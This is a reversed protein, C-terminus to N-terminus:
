ETEAPAAAQASTPRRMALLATGAIVLVIGVGHGFRITEGFITVAAVIPLVNSLITVVPSVVSARGNAFATQFFVSALLNGAIVIYIPYDTLGAVWAESRLLSFDGGIEAVVRQTMLKTMLNCLGFILGASVSLTIEATFGLRRALLATTTLIATAATFLLLAGNGPILSAGGSEAQAVVIVGAFVLGIGTWEVPMVKEKLFAVGILAAVAGTLCTIPLVRAIGARGLATMFVMGGGIMLLLGVTWIWNTILTKLVPGIQRFFERVSIKPFAGSMGYKQMVTGIGWCLSAMVALLIPNM